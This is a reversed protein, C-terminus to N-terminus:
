GRTRRDGICRVCGSEFRCDTQTKECQACTTLDPNPHCRIKKQRCNICAQALRKRPKGAKTLGRDPHAVAEHWPNGSIKARAHSPPSQRGIAIDNLTGTAPSNGPSHSGFPNARVINSPHFRPSLLNAELPSVQAYQQPSAQMFTPTQHHIPILADSSSTRMSPPSWTTSEFPDSQLGKISSESARKSPSWFDNPSSLATTPSISRPQELHYQPTLTSPDPDVFMDPRLLQRVGPLRMSPGHESHPRSLREHAANQPWGNNSM